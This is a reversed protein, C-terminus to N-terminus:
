RGPHKIQYRYLQFYGIASAMSMAAVMGWLGSFGLVHALWAGSASGIVQAVSWAMTYLGAYQGRNHDSSRAIYYSNMFPMAIMEAMTILITFVMGTVFGGPWPKVLLLYSFAMLVTGATMLVLYPKRGELSYVLVMEFLAIMVGNASMIVGISFEDLKLGEKMFLPVTTFLQFFAISFLVQFFLFRIFVHDRYPASATSVTSPSKEEKIEQGAHRVSRPLLWLLLMSALISTGGDTWFLWQYDISALIGGVASGVGWGLNIALRILSFAQTRNAATSYYSIATANAPRFSENVMSLFFTCVLIAPYSEMQGLLIFFVGGLLLAGVQTPYFGFRDSIRGGLLAGVISGLGYVSVAWGAESTSFGLSRCYLTMFALVMTGCRNVFMVLSLLWIQKSIGSYSNAYLQRISAIM